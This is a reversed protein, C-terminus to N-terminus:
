FKVGHRQPRTTNFAMKAAFEADLDVDEGVLENDKLAAWLDLLRIIADAFEKAVEVDGKDKRIAELIETVESHVLALKLGVVENTVQDYDYFGKKISNDHLVAALGSLGGIELIDYYEKQDAPFLELQKDSM